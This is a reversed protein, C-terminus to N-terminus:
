AKKISNQKHNCGGKTTAKYRKLITKMLLNQLKYVSDGCINWKKAFEQFTPPPKGLLVDIQRSIKNLKNLSHM